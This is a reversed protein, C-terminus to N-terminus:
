ERQDAVLSMRNPKRDHQLYKICCHNVKESGPISSAKYSDTVSRRSVPTFRLTTEAGASVLHQAEPIQELLLIQAPFHKSLTFWCGSLLPMRMAVPVM